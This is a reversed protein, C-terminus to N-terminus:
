VSIKCRRLLGPTIKVALEELDMYEIKTPKKYGPPFNWDDSFHADICEKMAELYGFVADVVFERRRKYTHYASCSRYNCYNPIRAFADDLDRDWDFAHFTDTQRMTMRFYASLDQEHHFNLGHFTTAYVMTNRMEEVLTPWSFKVASEL